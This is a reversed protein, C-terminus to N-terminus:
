SGKSRSTEGGRSETGKSTEQITSSLQYECGSLNENFNATTIKLQM